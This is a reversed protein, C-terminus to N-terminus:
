GPLRGLAHRVLADLEDPAARAAAPGPGDLDLGADAAASRYGIPVPLGLTHRVRQWRAALEGDDLVAAAVLAGAFATVWRRDALSAALGARLAEAAGPRGLRRLAEARPVQLVPAWRRQDPGARSLEALDRDVRALAEAPADLELLVDAVTLRLRFRRATGLADATAAAEVLAARATAPDGRRVALEARQGHYTAALWGCTSRVLPGIREMAAEARDLRHWQLETDVYGALSAALQDGDIAASEAMVQDARALAAPDVLSSEVLTVMGLVDLREDPALADLDPLAAQLLRLGETRDGLLGRLQARNTRALARLRPPTRGAVGPRELVALWREGAAAYGPAVNWSDLLLHALRVVDVERGAALGGALAHEADALDGAMARAAALRDSFLTIADLRRGRDLWHEFHRRRTAAEEGSAALRAAAYDRITRLMLFRGGPGAQLLSRDVLQAALALPTGPGDLVAEVAAAGFGGRFVSLQALARQEAPELLRYSWDITDELTRRGGPGPVASTLLDTGRDLRDALEPVSLARVRAAALELALPLGDLRRCIRAVAAADSLDATPLAERTRRRFLEAAPSDGDGASTALPGLRWVVEESLGLPERSTVLVTLAPCGGRLRSVLAAVAEALHEANDVLLLQRGGALATEVADLTADAAGVPVQLTTALAPVLQDAAALSALGLVTVPQRAGGAAALALATKGGGGPGTVTVLDHERLARRLDTLATERGVLERLSGRPGRWVETTTAPVARHYHDFLRRRDRDTLRLATALADLSARRPRAVLGRELNSLGRVSMGAREAAEEQTLGAAERLAVVLSTASSHGGV